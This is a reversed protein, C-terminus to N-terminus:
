KKGLFGIKGVEICLITVRNLSYVREWGSLDGAFDALICTYLELTRTTKLIRTMRKRLERFITVSRSIQNGMNM